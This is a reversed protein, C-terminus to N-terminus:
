RIRGTRFREEHAMARLRGAILAVLREVVIRDADRETAITRAAQEPTGTLARRQGAMARQVEEAVLRGVDPRSAFPPVRREPLGTRSIARGTVLEGGGIFDVDAGVHAGVREVIAPWDGSTAGQRGTGVVRRTAALVPGTPADARAEGQFRRGSRAAAGDSWTVAATKRRLALELAASRGHRTAVVVRRLLGGGLDRDANPPTRRRESRHILIHPWEVTTRAEALTRRSGDVSTVTRGTSVRESAPM